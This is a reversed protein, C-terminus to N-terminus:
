GGLPYRERVWTRHCGLEIVDNGSLTYVYDDGAGSQVIDRYNSGYIQDAGTGGKISLNGTAATANVLTEENPCVIALTQAGAVIRVLKDIYFGDNWNEFVLGGLNLGLLNGMQIELLAITPGAGDGNGIVRDFGVTSVALSAPPGSIAGVFDAGDLIFSGKVVDLTEIGNLTLNRLDSIAHVQTTAIATSDVQLVDTGAGGTLSDMPTLDDALILFRDDGNGGNFTDAGQLGLFIDDYATGTVVDLGATGTIAVTDQAEWNTLNLTSLDANTVNGVTLQDRAGSLGVFTELGGLGLQAANIVVETGNLFVTEVSSTNISSINVGGTQFLDGSVAAGIALIADNGIGGFINEGSVADGSRYVFTDDGTDGTLQDADGGGDILDNGGGGNMIDTANGGYLEDANQFFDTFLQSPTPGNALIDVFRWDGAFRSVSLPFVVPAAFEYSALLVASGPLSWEIRTVDVSFLGTSDYTRNGFVEAQIATVAPVGTVVVEVVPNGSPTYGIIAGSWISVSGFWTGAFGPRASGLLFALGPNDTFTQHIAM